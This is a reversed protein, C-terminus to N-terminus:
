SQKEGKLIVPSGSMDSLDTHFAEIVSIAMDLNAKDQDSGIPETSRITNIDDTIGLMAAEHRGFLTNNGAVFQSQAESTINNLMSDVAQHTVGPYEAELKAEQNQMVQGFTANIVKDGQDPLDKQLQDFQGIFANSVDPVRDGLKNFQAQVAPQSESLAQGAISQLEPTVNTNLDSGLQSVFADQAHGPSVLRSLSSAVVGTGIALILVVVVFGGISWLRTEWRIRELRKIDSEIPEHIVIM